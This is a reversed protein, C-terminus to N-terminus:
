LLQERFAAGGGWKLSPLGLAEFATGCDLFGIGM